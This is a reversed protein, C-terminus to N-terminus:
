SASRLMVPHAPPDLLGGSGFPQNDALPRALAHRVVPPAVAAPTPGTRVVRGPKTPKTTRLYRSM